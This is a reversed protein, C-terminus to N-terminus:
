VYYVNFCLLKNLQLSIGPQMSCAQRPENKHDAAFWLRWRNILNRMAYRLLLIQNKHHAQELSWTFAPKTFISQINAEFSNHFAWVQMHNKHQHQPINYLRFRELKEQQMFFFFFRTAAAAQETMKPVQSKIDTNSQKSAKVYHHNTPAIVAAVHFAVLLAIKIAIFVKVVCKKLRKKKKCNPQYLPRGHHKRWGIYTGFVEGGPRHGGQTREQKQQWGWPCFPFAVINFTRESHM